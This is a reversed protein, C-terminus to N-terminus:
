QKRRRRARQSIAGLAKRCQTCIRRPTGWVIVRDYPHGRPCSTKAANAAAFTKGRLVNERESVPELHDPNVCGRVRCLHDLDMGQPIEGKVLTYIFRHAQWQRGYFKVQGYGWSNTSGAWLWCGSNPEPHIRDEIFAVSNKHGRGYPITDTM